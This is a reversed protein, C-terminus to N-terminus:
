SLPFDTDVQNALRNMRANAVSDKLFSDGDYKLVREFDTLTFGVHKQKNIVLSTSGVVIDQATFTAGDTVDFLPSRRITLTDGIPVEGNGGAGPFDTKFRSDVLKAMVMQNKLILLLRNAVKGVNKFSNSM